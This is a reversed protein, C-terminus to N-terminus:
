RRSKKNHDLIVQYKNVSKPTIKEIDPFLGLPLQQLITSSFKKDEVHKPQYRFPNASEKSTNLSSINARPSKFPSISSQKIKSRLNRATKTFQDSFINFSSALTSSSEYVRFQSEDYNLQYPDPKHNELPSLFRTRPRVQRPKPVIRKQLQPTLPKLSRKIPLEDRFPNESNKEENSILIFDELKASDITKFKAQSPIDNEFERKKKSHNLIVRTPSIKEKDKNPDQSSENENRSRDLSNQSRNYQIVKRRINVPRKMRIEKQLTNTASKLEVRTPSKMPPIRPSTLRTRSPSKQIHEMRATLDQLSRSSEKILILDDEIPNTGYFRRNSNSYHEQVPESPETNSLFPMSKVYSPEIIKNDRDRLSKQKRFFTLNKSLRPSYYPSDLALNQKLNYVQIFYSQYNSALRGLDESFM